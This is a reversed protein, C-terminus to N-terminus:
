KRSQFRSWIRKHRRYSKYTCCPATRNSPLLCRCELASINFKISYHHAM